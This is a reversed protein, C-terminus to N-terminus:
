HQEHDDRTEHSERDTIASITAVPSRALMAFARRLTERRSNEAGGDACGPQDARVSSGRGSGRCPRFDEEENDVDESNEEEPSDPIPAARIEQLIRIVEDLEEHDTALIIETMEVEDDEDEVAVRLTLCFQSGEEPPALTMEIVGDESTWTKTYVPM